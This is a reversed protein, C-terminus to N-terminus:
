PKPAEVWVDSHKIREILDRPDFKKYNGPMEFLNESQPEEQVNSLTITPIKDAQIKLPFNLIADIWGVFNQGSSQAHYAVVVRGEIKEEGIRECNWHDNQESAGAVIAMRQWESCPREAKIGVLLRTLPSSQRAEMFIRSGPKVLYATGKQSDVVFYDGPFHSSEIRVKSNAVYIKGSSTPSHASVETASTESFDASFQRAYTATNGCAIMALALFCRVTRPIPPFKVM